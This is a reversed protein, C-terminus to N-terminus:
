ETAGKLFYTSHLCLSKACAVVDSLQVREVAAMYEAPTMKMGSLAATAYYNEISGPSDHTARLTSLVAERGAELEEPSIRGQRCDELLTLVEQKTEDVKDFDIGASVALIGKSGYYGSGISYCLSLKERINQFLKSTMGGGFLVNLVQMAAFEETRNTIPTTFGMCLKGQTVDMEETLEGPVGTKLGSQPPVPVSKKSLGRVIPALLRAVEEAPASGVYFIHIPNTQLADLYSRRLAIPEIARIQEPRGLRPLGFSDPACMRELLRNQAYLRKDNRECEITSILNSKESEVFAPLFGEQEVPSDLLLEGLFETMPDLVRDGPLAFRDDMFSCYLGTTQCDGVRRVLPSVSAGYLTDLRQTISRLDPCRGTGRLLVSPLLARWAADQATMQGVLQFSLCGQKFRTDRFCRLTVNPFLEIIEITFLEKGIIM